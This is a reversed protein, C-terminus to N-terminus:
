LKPKMAAELLKMVSQQAYKTAHWLPTRGHKDMSAVEVQGSEILLEVISDHGGAAAYSLPTRGDPDYADFFEQGSNIFLKVLTGHGRAAAYSLPTWNVDDVRTVDVNGSKILLKIITEFGGAAAYSLPTRGICDKSDVEVQGADMLLKVITEHGGGAAYSLPTQGYSDGFDVKTQDADNLLRVIREHGNEAAYSLPTRGFADETDVDVQESDLLLKVTSEYGSRAAHLLPTRDFEDESDVDVQGSEILLTLVAEHGSEAAYSLPTRGREDYCDLPVEAKSLAQMLRRLGFRGALHTGQTDSPYALTCNMYGFAAAEMAQTASLVLMDNRLFSLASDQMLDYQLTNAHYGGALLHDPWHKAAYALLPYAALRNAMETDSKSPGEMFPTLSLYKLCKLAITVESNPMWGRWSQEFFKQATYHVLRITGSQEDETILGACASVILDVDDLDDEGFECAQANDDVALAHRFELSNLPRRACAIWSIAEEARAAHGPDQSRIRAMADSYVRAYVSRDSGKPLTVLAEYVQRKRLCKRLSEMHLQALLFRNFSLRRCVPAFTFHPM